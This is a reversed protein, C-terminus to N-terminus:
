SLFYIKEHPHALQLQERAIKEKYFPHTNWQAIKQELSHIEQKIGKIEDELGAIEQQKKQLHWIGHADFCYYFTFIVIELTLVMLPVKRKINKKM